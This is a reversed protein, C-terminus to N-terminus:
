CSKGEALNDEDSSGGGGLSSFCALVSPHLDWVITCGGPVTGGEVTVQGEIGEIVPM